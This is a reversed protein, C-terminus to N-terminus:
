AEQYKTFGGIGLGIVAAFIGFVPLVTQYGVVASSFLVESLGPLTLPGLTQGLRLVSTNVGLMSARQDATAINVIASNLSPMILGFGAGYVILLVAIHLPSSAIRVGLLAVGNLVFGVIILANMSTIAQLRGYRAAIVANSVSVVSIIIGLYPEQTGYKGSLLLPVATLVAGYYLFFTAFAAVYIGFATPQTAVEWIQSLQAKTSTTQSTEGKEILPIAVLGVVISIGFFVFPLEWRIGALLGGILPFVAAGLGLVSSNLGIVAKQRSGEYYDGALTLSLTVLASGGIGQVFRLVLVQEYTKTFAIMSGAVGFLLLLPVLIRRRGFKDAAIGVFPTILMGPITFVTIILGIQTDSVAFVTRLAPLVPSLLSVGMVGILSNALIIHFRPSSWPAGRGTSTNEDTM